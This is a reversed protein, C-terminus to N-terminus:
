QPAQLLSVALYTIIWVCVVFKLGVGLLFGMFTGFAAKLSKDAPSGAIIEGAFAGVFPCIIIGFPMFFLGAFTGLVAGIVGAKSAGSKKAGWAQFFYELLTALLVIAFFIFVWVWSIRNGYETFKILVLPILLLPLGPVVPLFCGAIGVIICVLSILIILIDM